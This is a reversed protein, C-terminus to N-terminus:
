IIGTIIFIKQVVHFLACFLFYFMWLRAAGIVNDKGEENDDDEEEDVDTWQPYIFFPEYEVISDLWPTQLATYDKENVFAGVCTILSIVILFRFTMKMISVITM